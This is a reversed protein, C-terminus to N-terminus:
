GGRAARLLRSGIGSKRCAYALAAKSWYAPGDVARSRPTIGLVQRMMGNAYAVAFHRRTRRTHYEVTASVNLSNGNVVRHPWNLPWFLGHGPKLDIVTAVEDFSPDYSIEEATVATVVREFDEQKLYPEHGPYLWIRKEGRVHLLGQGPVDAHYYVRANPSSILIGIQRNFSAQGPVAADITDMIADVLRQYRIDREGVHGVNVWLAGSRVAAFLTQPDDASLGSDRWRASDETSTDMTAIERVADPNHRVLEALAEDSFLPNSGLDHTVPVIERDWADAINDPLGVTMM